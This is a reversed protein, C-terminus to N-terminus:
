ICRWKKLFAFMNGNLKRQQECTLELSLTSNNGDLICEVEVDPLVDSIYDAMGYVALERWCSFTQGCIEVPTHRDLMRGQRTRRYNKKFADVGASIFSEILDETTM